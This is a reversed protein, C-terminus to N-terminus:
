TILHYNQGSMIRKQLEKRKTRNMRIGFKGKLGKIVINFTVGDSHWNVHKTERTTGAIMWTHNGNTTIRDGELMCNTLHETLITSFKNFVEGSWRLKKRGSNEFPYLANLAKRHRNLYVVNGRGIDVPTFESYYIVRGCPLLHQRKKM